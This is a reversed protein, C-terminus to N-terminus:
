TKKADPLYSSHCSGYDPIRYISNALIKYKANKSGCSIAVGWKCLGRINGLKKYFNVGRSILLLENKRKVYGLIVYLIPCQKVIM